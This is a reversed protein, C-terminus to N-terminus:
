NLIDQNFHERMTGTSFDAELYVCFDPGFRNKRSILEVVNTDDYKHVAIAADADYQISRSWAVQELMPPQDPITLDSATVASIAIVPINNRLALRKLDRSVNRIKETENRSNTGDSMLQIYDVVLLDPRHQDIKAQLTNVTVEAIGDSSVIIFPQKGAVNKKSWTRFDDIDISGTQLNAMSFLGDGMTAYIRDRMAAATMEMSVIMPKKGQLFAQNALYGGLWSNHTVTYDETLYLSDTADVSICMMEVDDVLEISSIAKFWKRPSYNDVKRKIGFPNEPTWLSVVIEPTTRKQRAHAVGGLSRVLEAVGNALLRSHTSFSPLRRRPSHGDTDMLGRLIAYRDEVSSILYQEPIFKDVGKREWDNEKFVRRLKHMAFRRCSTRPYERISQDPSELRINDVIEEDNCSLVAVSDGSCYSGDGLMAGMLYPAIPLAQKEYEVPHAIPLRVKWNGRQGPRLTWSLGRELLAKTTMTQIRGRNEERLSPYFSWLHNGSFLGDTGDSFGVRYTSVNGQPHIALVNTPKGDSGFVMDGPVLDGFRKYGDPTPIIKDVHEAKGKGSYGLLIILNGPAMGAPMSRDVSKLNVKIGINGDNSDRHLRLADYHEEASAVDTLNIDKVTTSYKALQTVDKMLSDLVRTASDDKLGKGAALLTQKLKSQMFSERLEDLYYETPATITEPIFQSHREVLQEVEPVANYKYYYNKLDQIVDAHSVFLDAVNESLVVGIDKNQCVASILASENNM